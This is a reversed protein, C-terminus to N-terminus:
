PLIVITTGLPVREYLDNLEPNQVSICGWTLNQQDNGPWDGWWGHIGIGGGLKTTKPPEKGANNANIIANKQAQTILGKKFGNVADANNPYNLRLWAVGLYQSYAGEFPGRSKQIIKYVGEPTKNDGQQQKPGNPEQGLAITYTKIWKGKAYLKMRFESKHAILLTDIKALSDPLPLSDTTTTVITTPILSDKKEKEVIKNKTSFDSFLFISALSIALLSSFLITKPRSFM